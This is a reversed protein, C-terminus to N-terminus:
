TIACPLLRRCRLRPLSSSSIAAHAAAPTPQTQVKKELELELQAVAAEEDVTQTTNAVNTPAVEPIFM